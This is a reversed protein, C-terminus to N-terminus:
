LYIVILYVSLVPNNSRADEEHFLTFYWNPAFLYKKNIYEESSMNRTCLGDDPANSTSNCCMTKQASNKSPHHDQSGSHLDHTRHPHHVAGDLPSFQPPHPSNM